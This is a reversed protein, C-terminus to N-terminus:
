FCPPVVSGCTLIAQPSGVNRMDTGDISRRARMTASFPWRTTFSSPIQCFLASPLGSWNVSLMPRLNEGGSSRASKSAQRLVLSIERFGLAEASRPSTKAGVRVPRSTPARRRRFAKTLHDDPGFESGLNEAQQAVELRAAARVGGAKPEKASM